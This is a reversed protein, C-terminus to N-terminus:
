ADAAASLLRLLTALDDPALTGLSEALVADFVDAGARRLREGEASLRHRVVRGPGDIRELLGRDIMRTALAGMSQDTQFSLQALLHLSADPHEELNRLVDWQALSLGVEALRRNAERQHRWQLRKVAQGVQRLSPEM